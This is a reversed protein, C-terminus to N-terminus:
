ADAAGRSPATSGAVLADEEGPARENGNQPLRSGTLIFEHVLRRLLGSPTRGDHAAIAAFGDAINKPLRTSVTVTPEPM